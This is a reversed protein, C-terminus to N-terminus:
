PRDLILGRTRATARWELGLSAPARVHTLRVYAGPRAGALMQEPRLQTVWIDPEVLLAVSGNAAATVKLVRGTVTDPREDSNLSWHAGCELRRRCFRCAALSPLAPGGDNQRADDLARLAEAVDDGTFPVPTRGRALSVVELRRPLHGYRVRFLHAYLLLQQRARTSAVAGERLGTKLDLVATDGQTVVVDARGRLRIVPDEMAVECEVAADPAEGLAAVLAAAAHRLRARTLVGREVAFARVGAAAAAQDFADALGMGSPDSRWTGQQIWRRVAEHALSGADGAVGAAGPPAGRAPSAAAPCQAILWAASPSLWAEDVM